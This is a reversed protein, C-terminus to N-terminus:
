DKSSLIWTKSKFKKKVIIKLVKDKLSIVPLYISLISAFLIKAFKRRNKKM